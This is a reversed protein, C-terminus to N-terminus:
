PNAKRTHHGCCSRVAHNAETTTFHKDDTTEMIIVLLLFLPGPGPNSFPTYSSPRKAGKQVRKRGENKRFPIPMTKNYAKISTQPLGRVSLVRPRQNYLPFRFCMWEPPPCLPYFFCFRRRRITGRVRSISFPARGAGPVRCSLCRFFSGIYPFLM